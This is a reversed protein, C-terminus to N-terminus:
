VTFSMLSAKFLLRLVLDGSDRAIHSVTISQDISSSAIVAGFFNEREGNRLASFYIARDRREVSHTFSSTGSNPGEAKTQKVRLGVQNGAVLWYVRADSFPSHLSM